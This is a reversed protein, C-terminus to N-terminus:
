PARRRAGSDSWRPGKRRSLLRQTKLVVPDTLRLDERVEIRNEDERNYLLLAHIEFHTRPGRDTREGIETSQVHDEDDGDGCEAASTNASSSARGGIQGVM